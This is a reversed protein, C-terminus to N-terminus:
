QEDYLDIRETQRVVPKTDLIFETLEIHLVRSRATRPSIASVHRATM